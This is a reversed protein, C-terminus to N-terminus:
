EDLVLSDGLATGLDIPLAQWRREKEVFGATKRHSFASSSVSFHGADINGKANTLRRFFPARRPCRNPARSQLSLVIIM